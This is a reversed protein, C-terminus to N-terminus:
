AQAELWVSAAEPFFLYEVVMQGLDYYYTLQVALELHLHHYSHSVHPETRRFFAPKRWGRSYLSSVLCDFVIFSKKGSQLVCMSGHVTRACATPGVEQQEHPRNLLRYLVLFTHLVPATQSRPTSNALCVVLRFANFIFLVHWKCYDECNALYDTSTKGWVKSLTM